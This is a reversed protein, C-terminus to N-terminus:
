MGEMGEYKSILAKAEEILAAGDVGMGSVQSIWDDVVPQTLILWKGKEEETFTYFDNGEAEAAALGPADGADMVEGAWKSAMMGSNADIIARLDESMSNYTDKNMAFFFTATYMARDGEFSSHSDVLEALKLATTVEYPLVTGDVVGRSVAEPVQPVPMGIAEAGLLTLAQNMARTPARITKGRLDELGQIPDGKMHFLGPGHVHFAIMHVDSFEERLYRDYIDWAAQSTAEASGPMFPLEFVESMPFRGPTYGPLGWGIDMIGDKIADYTAPPPALQSSPFVEIAIRGDSEEVIKDAWPQIFNAPVTAQPPLFYGLRLTVEQATAMTIFVILVFIFLLKKM